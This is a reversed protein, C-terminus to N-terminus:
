FNFSKSSLIVQKIKKLFNDLKVKLCSQAIFMSSLLQKFDQVTTESIFM